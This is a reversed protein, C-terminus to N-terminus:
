DEECEHKPINLLTVGAHVEAHCNRCLLVCKDLEKKTDDMNLHNKSSITFDKEKPNLHHFELSQLCKKYGCISCSGGKYDVCKQKKNHRYKKVSQYTTKRSKAVKTKNLDRTNKSNFPSCIFCFRRRQINVYKDDIKYAIENCCGDKECIKIKRM